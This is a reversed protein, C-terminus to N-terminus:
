SKGEIIGVRGRACVEEETKCETLTSVFCAGLHNSGARCIHLVRSFIFTLHENM